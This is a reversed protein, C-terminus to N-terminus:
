DGNNPITPIEYVNDTINQVSFNIEEEQGVKRLYFVFGGGEYDDFSTATVTDTYDYCGSVGVLGYGSGYNQLFDVESATPLVLSITFTHNEQDTFTISHLYASAFTGDLLSNFPIDNITQVFIRYTSIESSSISPSASDDWDSRGRISWPEWQHTEENYKPKICILRRKHDIEIDINVDENENVFNVDGVVNVSKDSQPKIINKVAKEWDSEGGGGSAEALMEKVIQRVQDPTAYPLAM